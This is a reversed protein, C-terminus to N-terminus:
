CGNCVLLLVARIQEWLCAQERGGDVLEQCATWRKLELIDWENERRSVHAVEEKTGKGLGKNM